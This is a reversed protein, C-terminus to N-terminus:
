KLRMIKCAKKYKEGYGRSGLVGTADHHKTGYIACEINILQEMLQKHRYVPDELMKELATKKVYLPYKDAAQAACSVILFVTIAVIVPLIFFWYRTIFYVPVVGYLNIFRKRRNRRKM